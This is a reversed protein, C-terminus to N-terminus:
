GNVGECSIYKLGLKIDNEWSRKMWSTDVSSGESGQSIIKTECYLAPSISFYCESPAHTFHTPKLDVCQFM